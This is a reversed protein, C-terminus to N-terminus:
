ELHPPQSAADARLVARAANRGISPEIMVFDNSVPITIQVVSATNAPFALAYLACAWLVWLGVAVDVAPVRLPLTGL